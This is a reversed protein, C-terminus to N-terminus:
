IKWLNMTMVKSIGNSDRFVALLKQVSVAAPLTGRDDIDM